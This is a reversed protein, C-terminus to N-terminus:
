FDLGFDCAQVTEMAKGKELTTALEFMKLETMSDTCMEPVPLDVVSDSIVVRNATM